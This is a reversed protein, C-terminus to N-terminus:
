ARREHTREEELRELTEEPTEIGHTETYGLKDRYEKAVRGAEHKCDFSGLHVFRGDHKASAKWPKGRANPGAHTVGVYGSTNNSKMGQNKNQELHTAGRLNTLRNDSRDRNIHDVTAPPDIGTAAKYMLRSKLYTRGDINIKSYGDVGICGAEKGAYANSNGLDRWKMSGTNFNIDFRELLYARTPLEKAKAM